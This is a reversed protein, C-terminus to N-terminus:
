SPSDHAPRSVHKSTPGRTRAGDERAGGPSHDRHYRWRWGAGGGRAGRMPLHGARGLALRRAIPVDLSVGLVSIGSTQADEAAGDRTTLDTDSGMITLSCTMHQVFLNCMGHQFQVLQGGLGRGGRGHHPPLRAPPTFGLTTQVCGVPLPRLELTRVASATLSALLLLPLSRGDQPM